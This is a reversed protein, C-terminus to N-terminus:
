NWAGLTSWALPVFQSSPHFFTRPYESAGDAQSGPVPGLIATRGECFNVVVINYLMTENGPLYRM